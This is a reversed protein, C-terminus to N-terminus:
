MGSRGELLVNAARRVSHFTVSLRKNTETGVFSTRVPNSQNVVLADRVPPGLIAGAKLWALVEWIHTAPWCAYLDLGRAGTAMNTAGM